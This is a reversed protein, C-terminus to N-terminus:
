KTRYGRPDYSFGEKKEDPPYQSVVEQGLKNAWAFGPNDENFLLNDKDNRRKWFLPQKTRDYYLRELVIHFTVVARVIDQLGLVLVFNEPYCARPIYPAPHLPGCHAFNASFYGYWTVVDGPVSKKVRTCIGKASYKGQLFRAIQGPSEFLDVLVLCDELM